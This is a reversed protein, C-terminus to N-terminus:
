SAQVEARREQLTDIAILGFGVIEKEVLVPSCTVRRYILRGAADGRRGSIEENIITEGALAREYLPKLAPWFHPVVDAVIRGAHAEAPLGNYRALTDNVRVYRFTRDIFAMGVPATQFLTELAASTPGRGDRPMRVSTVDRPLGLCAIHG